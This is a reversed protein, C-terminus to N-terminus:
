TVSNSCTFCVFKIEESQVNVCSWHYWMGCSDYCISNENDEDIENPELCPKDCNPCFCIPRIGLLVKCMYSKYFVVLNRLVDQWHAEDFKIIEVFPPGVTTWVVFYCQECETMALQGIIQTYYKHNRKLQIKGYAKELFSTENWAELVSQNRISYSCKVEVCAKKCCSCLVLADPSACIYPHSKSVFLGCSIMKCNNHIKTFETFFSEKATDEHDIGWKTPSLSSIDKQYLLIVLLPTIECNAGKSQSKSLTNVKTFVERFKSATIRGKRQKYWATSKSQSRTSKELEHLQRDSFSLKEFYKAVLEDEPLSDTEGSISEAIEPLPDPVDEDLAPAFSINLVANPLLDKVKTLFSTKQEQTVTRDAGARPDFTQKEKSDISFHPKLKSRNHSEIYIDKVRKAEIDVNSKNNWSCPTDTCAPNTLGHTNAYEVKYLVAILHNCCNSLGATCSCYGSLIKGSKDCIIWVSKHEDRVRQSPTVTGTILVKDDILEKVRIQHVFGSKFYSNAKRIKYQGVYETSFAKNSIVYAFIKGLDVSPWKTMDDELDNMTTHDSINQSDLLKKYEQRLREKFELETEKVPTRNEYAVLARAALDVNKGTIALGRVKLFYELEGRSM